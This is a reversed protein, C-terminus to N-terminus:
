FIRVTRPQPWLSALWLSSTLPSRTVIWRQCTSATQVELTCPCRHHEWRRKQFMIWEWETVSKYFCQFAGVLILIPLVERVLDCCHWACPLSILFRWTMLASQLIYFRLRTSRTSALQDQLTQLSTVGWLFKPKSAVVIKPFTFSFHIRNASQNM